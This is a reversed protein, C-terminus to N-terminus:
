AMVQGGDIVIAQGNMGRADSSVLALVMHAVEEADLLRKQPSMSALAKSADEASRGTKDAIRSAAEKSMRTEVWGPCVANVTVGSRPIEAALARTLGVLAHKSACYATTYAYGSRGANSAVNVVRGWKREIMAPILGRCLAFAATVNIEFARDWTEDSTRDFPASDAIGANNILVDVPGLDSNLRQIAAQVASRNAVDLVLPVGGIASATEDLEAQTRGSVIVRAGREALREAIARGIGRGGGTVLAVKGSLDDGRAATGAHGTAGDASKSGNTM